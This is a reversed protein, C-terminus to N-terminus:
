NYMGMIDVITKISLQTGIIVIRDPIKPTIPNMIENARISKALLYGFPLIM